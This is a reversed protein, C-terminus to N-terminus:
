PNEEGNLSKLLYNWYFSQTKVSTHLMNKDSSVVWTEAEKSRITKHHGMQESLSLLLCTERLDGHHSILLEGEDMEGDRRTPGRLMTTFVKIESM